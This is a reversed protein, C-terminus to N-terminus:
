RLLSRWRFATRSLSALRPVPVIRTSTWPRAQLTPSGGQPGPTILAVILVHVTVVVVDVLSRRDRILDGTEEGIAMMVM